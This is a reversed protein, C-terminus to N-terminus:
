LIICGKGLKDDYNSSVSIVQSEGTILWLDKILPNGKLVLVKLTYTKHYMKKIFNWAVNSRYNTSKCINFSTPVPSLNACCLKLFYLM